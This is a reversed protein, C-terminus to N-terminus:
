FSKQRRKNKHDYFNNDYEQNDYTYLSPSGHQTYTSYTPNTKVYLPTNSTINALHVNLITANTNVNLSQVDDVFTTISSPFNAITNLAYKAGNRVGENQVLSNNFLQVSQSEAGLISSLFPPEAQILSILNQQVIDHYNPPTYNFMAIAFLETFENIESVLVDTSNSLNNLINDTINATATIMDVIPPTYTTTYYHVNLYFEGFGVYPNINEAQNFFVEEIYVSCNSTTYFNGSGPFEEFATYSNFNNITPTISFWQRSYCPDSDHHSNLVILDNLYVTSVTQVTFSIKSPRNGPRRVIGPGPGPTTFLSPSVYDASIKYFLRSTNSPPTITLSNFVIVLDLRSTSPLYVNCYKVIVNDINCNWNEYSYDASYGFNTVNIYDIPSYPAVIIPYSNNINFLTPFNSVVVNPLSNINLVPLTSIGIDVSSTIHANIFGGVPAYPVFETNGLQETVNVQIPQNLITVPLSADVIHVPVYTNQVEVLLSTSLANHVSLDGTVPLTISDVVNVNLIESSDIFVTGTIPVSSLINSIILPQSYNFPPISVAPLINTNNINDVYVHLPQVIDFKYTENTNIYGAFHLSSVVGSMVFATNSQAVPNDAYYFLCLYNVYSPNLKYVGNCPVYPFITPINSGYILINLYNCLLYISSSSPEAILGNPYAGTVSFDSTSCTTSSVYLNVLINQGPAFPWNGQVVNMTLQYNIQPSNFSDLLYVSSTSASTGELPTLILGSFIIDADMGQPTLLPFAM